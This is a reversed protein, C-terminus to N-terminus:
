SSGSTGAGRGTWGIIAFARSGSAAVTGVLAGSADDVTLDAELDADDASLYDFNHISSDNSSPPKDHSFPSITIGPIKFKYQHHRVARSPPFKIATAGKVAEPDVDLLFVREAGAYGSADM